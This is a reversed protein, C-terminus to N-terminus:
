GGGDTPYGLDTWRKWGGDMSVVNSYGMQQLVDAVLASRYGGGCYLVIDATLDPVLREVDREVIGKGLHTAGAIRGKGWEHDERVDILVFKDRHREIRAHLRSAKRDAIVVDSGHDRGVTLTPSNQDLDITREGHTLRLHAAKAVPRTSLTTLEETSEQWLLEYVAMDAQKGKVTHLDQDRM